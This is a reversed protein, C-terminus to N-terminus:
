SLNHINFLLLEERNLKDYLVLVRIIKIAELVRISKPDDKFQQVLKKFLEKGKKTIKIEGNEIEWTSWTSSFYLPCEM